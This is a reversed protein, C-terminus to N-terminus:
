EVPKPGIERPSAQRAVVDIVHSREFYVTYDPYVWRHIVPWQPSQGGRPELKSQPAGYRAEVQAMTTGRVPANPMSKSAKARDVLLTDSRQAVAPLALCCAVLAFALLAPISRKM